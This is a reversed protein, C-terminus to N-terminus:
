ILYLLSFVDHWLALSVVSGVFGLAGGGGLESGVCISPPKSFCTFEKLDDRVGSGKGPGEKM